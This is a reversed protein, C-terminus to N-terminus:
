KKQMETSATVKRSRAVMKGRGTCDADMPGFTAGACYRPIASEYMQVDSILYGPAESRSENVM